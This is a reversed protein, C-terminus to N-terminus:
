RAVKEGYSKFKVELKRYQLFYIPLLDIM